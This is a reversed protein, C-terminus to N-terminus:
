SPFVEANTVRINFSVKAWFYGGCHPCAFSEKWKGQDWDTDTDFCDESDKLHLVTGCYPCVIPYDENTM